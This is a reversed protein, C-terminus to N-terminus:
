QPSAYSHLGGSFWPLYSVGWWTIMVMIFGVVCAAASWRGRWGLVLRSHLYVTYAVWTIFAWTEKPDWGWYRGWATDAWVAGLTIGVTLIPWGVQVLRYSFEENQALSLPDAPTSGRRAMIARIAITIGVLAAALGLVAGIAFALTGIVSVLSDLTAGPAVIRLLWYVGFLACCGVGSVAAVRPAESDKLSRLLYVISVFAAIAFSAYSLLMMTVHINLWYSNLVARLPHIRTEHLPMLSAGTLLLFGVTMAGLAAMGRRTWLEFCFAILVMAWSCFTISEFMNSVPIHGTLYLRLVVAATHPIFGLVMLVMAARYFGASRFFFYLGMAMVGFLYVWAAITWPNTSIYFNYWGRWTRDPYLRSKEVVELFRDTASAIQSPDKRAFAMALDLEYQRGATMAAVGPMNVTVPRVWRGDVSESDPVLLLENALGAMTQAREILRAGAEVYAKEQNWEAALTRRQEHLLKQEEPSNVLSLLQDSTIGKDEYAQLVRMEQGLRRVQELANLVDTTRDLERKKGQERQLEETFEKLKPNKIIQEPSVWKGDLGLRTLLDPHEVPLIRANLWREPQFTMSLITYVPDQNGIRTRGTIQYIKIRAYSLMTEKWGLHSVAVMRISSARIAEQMAPDHPVTSLRDTSDASLFGGEAAGARPVLLACFAVIAVLAARYLISASRRNQM